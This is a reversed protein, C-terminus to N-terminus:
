WRVGSVVCRGCSVVAYGCVAGCYQLLKGPVSLLTICQSGSLIGILILAIFGWRRRKRKPKAMRPSFEGLLAFKSRNQIGGYYRRQLDTRPFTSFIPTKKSSNLCFADGSLVGVRIPKLKTLEPHAPLSALLSHQIFYTDQLTVNRTIHKTRTNVHQRIRDETCTQATRRSCSLDVCFESIKESSRCTSLCRFLCIALDTM